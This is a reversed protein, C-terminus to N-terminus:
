IKKQRLVLASNLEIGAFISFNIINLMVVLLISSLKAMKAGSVCM